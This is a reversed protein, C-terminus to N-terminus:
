CDGNDPPAPILIQEGPLGLDNGSEWGNLAIVDAMDVCYDNAIKILYDGAEITHLAGADCGPTTCPASPSEICGGPPIKIVEGPFPFENGTSWDNFNILDERRLVKRAGNVVSTRLYAAPENIRDVRKYVGVFADQVVQEADETTDVLVYALRVMPRYRDRYLEDFTMPMPGYKDRASARGPNLHHSVTITM